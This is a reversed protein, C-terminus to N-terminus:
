EGDKRLREIRLDRKLDKNEAEILEKVQWFELLEAVKIGVLTRHEATVEELELELAEVEKDREIITTDRLKVLGEAADARALQLGSVEKRGGILLAAFIGALALLSLFLAILFNMGTLWDPLLLFLIM